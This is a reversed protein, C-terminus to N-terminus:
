RCASLLLVCAVGKINIKTLRDFLTIGKLNECGTFVYKEIVTIAEPITINELLSCLSFASKGIDALESSLM